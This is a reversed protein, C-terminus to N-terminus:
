HAPKVSQESGGRNRELPSCPKNHGAGFGAPRMTFNQNQNRQNMLATIATTASQKNKEKAVWPLTPDNLMRGHSMMRATKAATASPLTQNRNAPCRARAM